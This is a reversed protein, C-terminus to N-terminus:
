YIKYKRNLVIIDEINTFNLNSTNIFLTLIIVFNTLHIIKM